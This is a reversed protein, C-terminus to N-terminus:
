PFYVVGDPITHGLKEVQKKVDVYDKVELKEANDEPVYSSLKKGARKSYRGENVIAKTIFCSILIAGSPM